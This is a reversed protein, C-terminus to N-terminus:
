CKCGAADSSTGKTTLSMWVESEARSFGLPSLNTRTSTHATMYIYAAFARVFCSRRARCLIVNNLCPCM